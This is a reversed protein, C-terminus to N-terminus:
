KGMRMRGYQATQMLILQHTAGAAPQQQQTPSLMMGQPQTRQQRLDATRGVGPAASVGQDCRAEFMEM